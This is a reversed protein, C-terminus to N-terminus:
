LLISSELSQPSRLVLNFADLVRHNLLNSDNIDDAITNVFAEFLDNYTDPDAFPSLASAELVCSLDHSPENIFIRLMSGSLALLAGAEREKLRNKPSHDRGVLRKILQGTQIPRPGCQTAAM